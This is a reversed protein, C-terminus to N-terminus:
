NKEVRRVATVGAQRVELLYVGAALSAPLSLQRDAALAAPALVVRGTLDRLSVMAAGAQPLALTIRGSTPNPSITLGPMANNPRVATVTSCGANLPTDTATLVVATVGGTLSVTNAGSAWAGNADTNCNVVAGSVISREEVRRVGTTLTNPIISNWAGVAASYFPVVSTGLSVGISEVVTTSLPRSTGAENDYLAIVNGATASSAGRIGTGNTAFDLTTISQNLALRKVVTAPAADTALTIAPFILNGTTFRANGSNLFGFWGSYAGAANTTFTFYSGATTLNGVSATSYTAGTATTTILLPIGAGSNNTTATGGFDQTGGGTTSNTAGQVYGRYVTSPTLNSITAQFVVPLRTSTGNAMYQPVVLGTFDAQTLAQAWTDLPLVLSALLTLAWTTFLKKM